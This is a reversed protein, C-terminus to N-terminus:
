VTPRPAAPSRPLHPRVGPPATTIGPNPYSGQTIEAGRPGDGPVRRPAGHGAHHARAARGRRGLRLPTAPRVGPDGRCHRAVPTPRLYPYSRFLTTYPFLTSRPPRRIM